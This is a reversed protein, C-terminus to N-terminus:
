ERETTGANHRREVRAQRQGHDGRQFILIWLLSLARFNEDAVLCLNVNLQARTKYTSPQLKHGVIVHSSQVTERLACFLEVVHNLFGRFHLLLDNIRNLTETVGILDRPLSCRPNWSQSLSSRLKLM